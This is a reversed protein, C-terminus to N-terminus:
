PCGNLDVGELNHGSEGDFPYSSQCSHYESESKACFEIGHSPSQGSDQSNSGSALPTSGPWIYKESMCDLKPRPTPRPSTSLQPPYALSITRTGPPPYLTYSITPDRYVAMIPPYSRHKQSAPPSRERSMRLCDLMAALESQQSESLTGIDLSLPLYWSWVEEMADKHIFQYAQPPCRFLGETQVYQKM